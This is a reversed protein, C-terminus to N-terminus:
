KGDKIVKRLSLDENLLVINAKKGVSISGYRDYVGVCKAPNITACAVATELPIGMEKVACRVCDPLPTVSGALAGDLLMNAKKGKLKFEQGGLMYTGDPMGTARLSDSIFVLHSEDFMGFTTRVVCPHVHVGDCIIEAYVDKCDAAAGVVGPARHSFPSMANYLHVVHNAGALFAAKACDYDANTHALAVNVDGKVERIFEAADGTEPAIGIFKVMGKAANQFKKYINVDFLIINKEDQAGKKAKSIFPGEMNIGLIDAGKNYECKLQKEKFDAAVSLINLLQKIPLTMTAPVISTVGISAEYEAIKEMGELTGDSFDHGRCGHFHIDIMGPIAYCGNGDIIDKPNDADSKYIDWENIDSDKINTKNIDSKNLIVGTIKDDKCIINGSVFVKDETFIKVNKIIM